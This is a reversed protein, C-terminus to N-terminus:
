PLFNIFNYGIPFLQYYHIYAIVNGGLQTNIPWTDAKAIALICFSFISRIRIM